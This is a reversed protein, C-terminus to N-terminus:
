RVVGPPLVWSVYDRDGWAAALWLIGAVDTAFADQGGDALLERPEKGQELLALLEMMGVATRDGGAGWRYRPPLKRFKRKLKGISRAPSARPADDTPIMAECWAVVTLIEADTSVGYGPASRTSRPRPNPPQLGPSPM